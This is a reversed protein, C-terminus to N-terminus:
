DKGLIKVAAVEQSLLHLYILELTGELAEIFELDFKYVLRGSRLYEHTNEDIIDVYDGVLNGALTRIARLMIEPSDTDRCVWIGLPLMAEYSDFWEESIDLSAAEPSLSNSTFASDYGEPITDDTINYKEFKPEISYKEALIIKAIKAMYEDPNICACNEISKLGSKFTVSSIATFGESGLCNVPIIRFDAIKIGRAYQIPTLLAIDVKNTILLEFATAEDVKFIKFEENNTFNDYLRSYVPNSIVAIKIEEM